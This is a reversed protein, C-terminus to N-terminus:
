KTSNIKVRKIIDLVKEKNEQSLKTEVAKKSITERNNTNLNVRNLASKTNEIKEPNIVLKLKLYIPLIKAGSYYLIYLFSLIFVLIEIKIFFLNEM